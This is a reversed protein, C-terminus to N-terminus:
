TEKITLHGLLLAQEAGMVAKSGCDDCHYNEADPECGYRDAGCVICFGRGYDNGFMIEEMEAETITIHVKDTKTKSDPM